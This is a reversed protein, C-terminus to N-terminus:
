NKAAFLDKGKILRRLAVMLIIGAAVCPWALNRYIQFSEPKERSAEYYGMEFSFDNLIFYTGILNFLMISGVFSAGLFIAENSMKNDTRVGLAVATFGIAFVVLIITTSDM